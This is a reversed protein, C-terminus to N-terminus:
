QSVPSPAPKTSAPNKLGMGPKAGTHEGHAIVPHRAAAMIGQQGVGVEVTITDFFAEPEVRAGAAKLAAAVRATDTTEHAAELARGIDRETIHRSRRNGPGNGPARRRNPPPM